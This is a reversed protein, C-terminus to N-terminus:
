PVFPYIHAKIHCRLLLWNESEAYKLVKITKKVLTWEVSKNKAMQDKAVNCHLQPIFASRDPQEPLESSPFIISPWGGEGEGEGGLILCVTTKM